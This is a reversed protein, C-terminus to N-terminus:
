QEKQKLRNDVFTKIEEWEQADCTFDLQFLPDQDSIVIFGVDIDNPAINLTHKQTTLTLM